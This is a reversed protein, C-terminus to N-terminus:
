GLAKKLIQVDDFPYKVGQIEQYKEHGKGAVLIIDQDQAIAVAAKIAEERSTISLSNALGKPDLGNKMDQIIQEPDEFRPNDSTIIIKNSYSAAIAAMLPRKSADRNGGCGLVTILKENGKRLKAITKLVNELADPTHAYDVIGTIKQSSIYYEFRGPVPELESLTTLATDAEVGLLRSCAFVAMINYANFEGVLRCWVEKGQIQLVLGSLLNELIKGKYDAMNKLSFTYQKARTNQLMVRGNKDDSNVLAFASSDLHDFFSKKVNLYERFTKHYDLHDHTINTFLAAEFKVGEVRNQHLAHSSVEMFCYMCQEQVMQAFLANLSIADPTTHSAPLFEQGVQNGMTSILGCKYGLKQFMRHLLSVITTKGNTGTVGVVKMQGSPHDYFNAAIIATAKSADAVKVYTVESQKESPMSQCVIVRAGSNIAQSIYNHGDTLTGPIAAFLFGPEVKRSDLTLGEVKVDISGATELLECKYLIDSLHKM